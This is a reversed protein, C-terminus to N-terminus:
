LGCAIKNLFHLFDAVVVCIGELTHKQSYQVSPSIHQSGGKLLMLKTKTLLVRKEAHNIYIIPSKISNICGVFQDISPMM